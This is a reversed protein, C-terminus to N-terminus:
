VAVPRWDKLPTGVMASYQLAFAHLQAWDTYEYDRSTDTDGGAKAALRKMFWRLFPNYRTYKLAGAVIISQAPQWGTESFFGNMIRTLDSQVKPNKQLVGLCVSVFATPKPQLAHAHRQVWRQVSKQYRGGRLSAAVIVGDYEFPDTAKAAAAAIVDSDHGCTRLTAGLSRAIKGTQGDTTGYLVLLRAM